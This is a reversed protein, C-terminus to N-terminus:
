FPQKYSPINVFRQMKLDIKINTFPQLNVHLYKDNMKIKQAESDIQYVTEIFNHEGMSGAQIILERAETKSLNVIELSTQDHTMGTVLASVDPPLGSRKNQVDFYRLRTVLLGGNYHPLPAGMTLQVLGECTVPNRRQFYSDSYKNPDEQDSEMFALKSEIQSINHKLITEPYEPYEGRMYALWSGDHGGQDKTHHWAKIDFKSGDKPSIQEALQMDYPNM